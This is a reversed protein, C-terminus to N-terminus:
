VWPLFWLFFIFGWVWLGVATFRRAVRTPAFHCITFFESVLLVECSCISKWYLWKCRKAQVVLLMSSEWLRQWQILFHPCHGWESCLTTKPFVRSSFFTGVKIPSSLPFLFSCIVNSIKERAPKIVQFLFFCLGGSCFPMQNFYLMAWIPKARTLRGLSLVCSILFLSGQSLTKCGLHITIKKIATRWLLVETDM